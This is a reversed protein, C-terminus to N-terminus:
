HHQTFVQIFYTMQLSGRTQNPVEATIEHMTNTLVPSGFGLELDSASCEYTAIDNTFSLAPTTILTNNIRLNIRSVKNTDATFNVGTSIPHTHEHADDHTHGDVKSVSSNFTNNKIPHSHNVNGIRDHFLHYHSGHDGHSSRGTDRGVYAPFYSIPNSTEQKTGTHTHQGLSSETTTSTNDTFVITQYSRWNDRYLLFQLNFVMPVTTPLFIYSKIPTYQDINDIITDSWSQLFGKATLIVPTKPDNTRIYLGYNGIPISM